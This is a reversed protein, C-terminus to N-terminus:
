RSWRLIRDRSADAWYLFRGDSALHRIGMAAAEGEGPLAEVLQRVEGDQTNARTVGAPGGFYVCKGDLIAEGPSGGTSVVMSAVHVRVQAPAGGDAEAPASEISFTPPPGPSVLMAFYVRGASVGVARAYTTSDPASWLAESTAGPVLARRHVGEGLSGWYAFGGSVIFHGDVGGGLLEPPQSGDRRVRGLVGRGEFPTAVPWVVYVYDTDLAYRAFFVLGPLAGLASWASSRSVVYSGGSSLDIGLLDLAQDVAFVHRSDAVPVFVVDKPPEFTSVRGSAADLRRMLTGTRWLVDRGNAFLDRPRPDRAIIEPPSDGFCRDAFSSAPLALEGAPGVGNTPDQVASCALPLMSLLLAMAGAASPVDRM